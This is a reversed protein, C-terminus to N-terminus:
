DTLQQLAIYFSIIKLFNSRILPQNQQRNEAPASETAEARIITLKPPLLHAIFNM